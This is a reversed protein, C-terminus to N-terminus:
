AEGKPAKAKPANAGAIQQALANALAAVADGGAANIKRDMDRQKEDYTARANAAIQDRVVAHRAMAAKVDDTIHPVEHYMGIRSDWVKMGPQKAYFIPLGDRDRKMVAALLKARSPSPAKSQWSAVAKGNADVPFPGEDWHQMVSGDTICVLEYLKRGQRAWRDYKSRGGGTMEISTM